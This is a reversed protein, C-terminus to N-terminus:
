LMKCFLTSFNVFEFLIAEEISLKLGSKKFNELTVTSIENHTAVRATAKWVFYKLSKWSIQKKELIGLRLSQYSPLFRTYATDASLLRMKKVQLM